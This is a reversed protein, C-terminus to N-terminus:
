WLAAHRNLSHGPGHIDPLRLDPHGFNPDRALIQRLRELRPASLRETNVARALKTGAQSDAEFVALTNAAAEVPLGCHQLMRAASAQRDLNVDNYRLALFPVGGRLHRTYEAMNLAWAPALALEMPVQPADLDVMPDLLTRDAAATFISWPLIRDPGTLTDAFNYQRMMGYISNAWGLADRYLFVCAAEPLAQHYLDAQFLAHSRFKIAFVSAARNPPPRFQLRTCARILRVVRDPDFGLRTTSHYHQMILTSFADPESLCWVGPVTNLAHSLLTSGCRGISFLFVVKGPLPLLDAVAELDALRMTLVRQALRHQTAYAFPSTALDTGAPLDVFIALDRGKDLGYLSWTQEAVVQDAAIPQAPGLIFDDLNSWGTQDRRGLVDQVAAAM